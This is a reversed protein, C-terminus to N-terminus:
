SSSYMDSSLSSFYIHSSIYKYIHVLVYIQALYPICGGVKIYIKASIYIDSSFYIDFSCYIDSSFYIYASSISRCNLNLVWTSYSNSANLSAGDNFIMRVNSRSNYSPPRPRPLLGEKLEGM